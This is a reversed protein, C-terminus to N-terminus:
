VDPNVVRDIEQVMGLQAFLTTAEYRLAEGRETKGAAILLSSWDRLTRAREWKVGGGVNDWVALSAEFCAAADYPEDDVLIPLEDAPLRTAIQGLVWWATGVVKEAAIGQWLAVQLRAEDLGALASERAELLAGEALLVRALGVRAAAETVGQGLAGAQQLVQAFASKADLLHKTRAAPAAEMAQALALDGLSYTLYAQRGANGSRHAYSLADRYYREAQRYAGQLRAMRGLRSLTAMAGYHDGIAQALELAQAYYDAAAGYDGQLRKTQGLGYLMLGEFMRDGLQRFLSLAQETAQWSADFQQLMRYAGGLLLYSFARGRTFGAEESIRRAEEGIELAEQENGLFLMAWGKASLAMAIDAPRGTKWAVREAGSASELSARHEGQYDYALFLGQWAEVQAELDGVEEAAALMAKLVAIAESFRARWHLTQGLGSYLQVRAALTEQTEPLFALAKRYYLIATEAAYAIRAHAAARGYWEAAKDTVGALEFHTAILGAFEVGREGSRNALWSAVGAHYAQRRRVPVSEYTVERLMAHKFTYEHVGAFSSQPRRYILDRAELQRLTEALPRGAVQGTAAVADNWFVRGVVAARQLVGREHATLRDLRTQLVGTLTSPIRLDPPEIAGSGGADQRALLGDEILVTVLEEVYYPNGGASEVITMALPTPIESAAPLLGGMLKLADEASLPELPLFTHRLGPPVRDRWSPRREFLTPRALLIMLLPVHSIGNMLHWFLELSGEDAWHVDEVIMVLLQKAALAQFLTVASDFARERLQRADGIVAQVYPSDRFDLGILQGLFHTCSLVADEDLQGRLVADLRSVLKQRAVVASDSDLIECFQRMLERFLAYPLHQLPLEARVELVTLPVYRWSEHELWRKFELGLRTKGIGADGAITIARGRRTAAVEDLMERLQQLQAHRGVMPTQRPESDVPSRAPAEDSHRLVLYAREHREGERVTAPAVVYRNGVHRLVDRSILISGSPAEAELRTAKTLTDGMAVMEESNEPPALLVHGTHIGIRLSLQPTHWATDSAGMNVERLADQMALAAAVAREPDDERAVPIGFLVTVGDGTHQEIQGGWSVVTEDLMRWVRDITDRVEEADMRESMATFGSLDAVLITVQKRQPTARLRLTELRERLAHVTTDVVGDGLTTRQAELTAITSALRGIEDPPQATEM